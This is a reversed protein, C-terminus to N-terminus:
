LYEARDGELVSLLRARMEDEIDESSVKSYSERVLHKVVSDVLQYRELGACVQEISSEGM